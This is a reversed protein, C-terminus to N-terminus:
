SQSAYFEENKYAVTYLETDGLNVSVTNLNTTGRKGKAVFKQYNAELTNMVYDTNVKIILVCLEEYLIGFYHDKKAYEVSAIEYNNNFGNYIGVATLPVYTTGSYVNKIQQFLNRLQKDEIAKSKYEAYKTHFNDWADSGYVDTGHGASIKKHALHGLKEAMVLEHWKTKDTVKPHGDKKGKRYLANAIEEYTYKDIDNMVNEMIFLLPHGSKENNSV